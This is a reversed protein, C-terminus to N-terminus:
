IYQQKHHYLERNESNPRNVCNDTYLLFYNTNRQKSLCKQSISDLEYKKFKSGNNVDQRIEFLVESFKIEAQSSRSLDNRSSNIFDSDLTEMTVPREPSTNFYYVPSSQRFLKNRSFNHCKNMTITASEKRWENFVLPNDYSVNDQKHDIHIDLSSSSYSFPTNNPGMYKVSEKRTFEASKEWIMRESLTDSSRNPCLLENSSEILQGIDLDQSDTLVYTYEHSLEINKILNETNNQKFQIFNNSTNLREVASLENSNPSYTIFRENDTKDDNCLAPELNDNCQVSDILQPCFSESVYSNAVNKPSISLQSNVRSSIDLDSHTVHSNVIIIATSSTECVPSPSNSFVPMPEEYTSMYKDNSVKEYKKLLPTKVNLHHHITLKMPDTSCLDNQSYNSKLTDLSTSASICESKPRSEPSPLDRVTYNDTNKTNWTADRKLLLNPTSRFSTLVRKQYKSNEIRQTDLSSKSHITQKIRLVIPESNPEAYSQRSLRFDTLPINFSQKSTLCSTSKGLEDTLTINSRISLTLSDLLLKSKAPIESKTISSPSIKILGPQDTTTTIGAGSAKVGSQQFSEIPSTHKLHTNEDTLNYDEKNQTTPGFTLLDTPQGSGPIVTLGYQSNDGKLPTFLSKGEHETTIDPSTSVTTLAFSRLSHEKFSSMQPLQNEDYVEKALQDGEDIEEHKPSAGLVPLLPTSPKSGPPSFVTSDVNTPYDDDAKKVENDVLVVGVGNDYGSVTIESAKDSADSTLFTNFASASGVEYEQLDQGPYAVEINEGSSVKALQQNIDSDLTTYEVTQRLADHQSDSIVPSVSGELQEQEIPKVIQEDYLQKVFNKNDMTKEVTAINIEPLQTDYRNELPSGDEETPKVTREMNSDSIPILSESAELDIKLTHETLKSEDATQKIVTEPTSSIPSKLDSLTQRSIENVKSATAFKEGKDRLYQRPQVSGSVKTHDGQKMKTERAYQPTSKLTSKPKIQSKGTPKAKPTSIVKNKDSERPTVVLPSPTPKSSLKPSTSVPPKVGVNSAKIINPTFNVPPITRHFQKVTSDTPESLNKPLIPKMDKPKQKPTYTLHPLEKKLVMTLTGLLSHLYVSMEKEYGLFLIGVGADDSPLDKSRRTEEIKQIKTSDIPLKSIKSPVLQQKRKQPLKTKLSMKIEQTGTIPVSDTTGSQKFTIYKIISAHFDPNIKLIDRRRFVHKAGSFLAVEYRHRLPYRPDPFGLFGGQVRGPVWCECLSNMNKVRVLVTDGDILAQNHSMDVVPLTLATPVEALVGNRRFRIVCVKQSLYRQVM